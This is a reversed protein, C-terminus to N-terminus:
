QTPTIVFISRKYLNVMGQWQLRAHFVDRFARAYAPVTESQNLRCERRVMDAKPHMSFKAYLEVQKILRYNTHYVSSIAYIKAKITLLDYVNVFCHGEVFRVRGM